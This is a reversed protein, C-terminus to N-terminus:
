KACSVLESAQEMPMRTTAPKSSDYVIVGFGRRPKGGTAVLRMTVGTPLVASQGKEINIARDKTEM